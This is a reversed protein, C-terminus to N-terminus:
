RQPRGGTGARRQHHEKHKHHKRSICRTKGNRHVKRKGKPCQKANGPGRVAESAPTPDNPPGLAPQCAEGACESVPHLMDPIGNVRADYVDLEEDEDTGGLGASTLFFVDDGSESADLFGSEEEGTGSSMLSVCGGGTQAVAAGGSASCDGTGSPEYQYIDWNRNSDAPVLSDIANFFVRGNDLMVHPRYLSIGVEDKRAPEPLVAAVWRDTLLPLPDVLHPAQLPELELREAM